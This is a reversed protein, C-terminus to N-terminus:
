LLDMIVRRVIDHSAAEPTRKEAQELDEAVVEAPSMEGAFIRQNISSMAGDVGGTSFPTSDVNVSTASKMVSLANAYNWRPLINGTLLRRDELAELGLRVPRLPTAGCKKSGKGFVKHLLRNLKNRAM